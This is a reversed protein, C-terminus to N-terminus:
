SIRARVMETLTEARNLSPDDTVRELLDRLIEGFLPGPPIGLARLDAGGIALDGIELAAGTSLLSRVRGRLAALSRLADADGGRARADAIRLRLLDWVHEPGVRRLWRRVEAAPAGPSPLGSHQAILHVARDTDANSFKLRRLLERAIAAGAGAHGPFGEAGPQGSPVAAKGVDHLLATVRLMPRHRPAADASALLHAWVDADGDPVGACAQLEPYLSRLAGCGEYLRLTDSPRAVERMTKMLEERVREASLAPLEHAIAAAAAWTREDVSLGFRGAFRLARLVRLRDERFREAPEGVTRVIGRRLDGIGGHPDRVEHTLPHWAVANITFDRRQLDEDVTDSFRVRAHRGDTEVDRRFTTVEYMRGDRGLVGVTGHAIGVPVTRRFLRRVDGPRAATTLDWDGPARGALADRVAGGVTWTSFGAAELRRAISVVERPPHLDPLADEDGPSVAAAPPSGTL